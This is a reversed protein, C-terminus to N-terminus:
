MRFLPECDPLDLTDLDNSPIDRLVPPICGTLTNTGCLTLEVLNSLNALEAPVDGSLDNDAM